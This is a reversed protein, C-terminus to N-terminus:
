SELNLIGVFVEQIRLGEAKFRSDQIRLPQISYKKQAKFRSDLFTPNFIKEQVWLPHFFNKKRLRSDQIWNTESGQIKFRSEL